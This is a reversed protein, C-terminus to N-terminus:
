GRCIDIKEKGKRTWDKRHFSIRLRVGQLTYCLRLKVSISRAEDAVEMFLQMNTSVANDPREKRSM